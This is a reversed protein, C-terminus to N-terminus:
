NILTLQKHQRKWKKKIPKKSNNIKFIMTEIKIDTANFEEVKKDWDPHLLNNNLLWDSLENFLSELRELEATQEATEKQKSTLPAM